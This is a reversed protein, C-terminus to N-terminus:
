LAARSLTAETVQSEMPSDDVPSARRAPSSRGSALNEVQVFDARANHKAVPLRSVTELRDAQPGGQLELIPKRISFDRAVAPVPQHDGRGLTALHNPNFVLADAFLELEGRPCFPM